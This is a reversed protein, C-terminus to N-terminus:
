TDNLKEPTKKPFPHPIKKQWEDTIVSMFNIIVSVKLGAKLYHKKLHRKPPSPSSQCNFWLSLYHRKQSGVQDPTKKNKFDYIISCIAQSLKIKM